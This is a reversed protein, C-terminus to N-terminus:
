IHILSLAVTAAGLFGALLAGTAGLAVFPTLVRRSRLARACGKLLGPTRLGRRRESAAHGRMTM